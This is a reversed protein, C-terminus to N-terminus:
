FGIYYIQYIQIFVSNVNLDYDFFAVSDCVMVM